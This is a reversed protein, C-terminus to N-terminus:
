FDEPVSKALHHLITLAAEQCPTRNALQKQSLQVPEEWDKIEPKKDWRIQKGRLNARM